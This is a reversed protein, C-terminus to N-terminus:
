RNKVKIQGTQQQGNGMLWTQLSAFMREMVGERKRKYSVMHLLASNYITRWFQEEYGVEKGELDNPCEKQHCYAIMVAVQNLVRPNNIETHMVVDTPDLLKMAVDVATPQQQGILKALSDGLSM